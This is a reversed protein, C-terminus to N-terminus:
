EVVEDATAVLKDPVQLGLSKATKLNIALEFKTPQQVPLDAPKEGRLIRDVYGAARRFPDVQDIGYALLGGDKVFERQGFVAPLRHTAALALIAGRAFPTEVVSDGPVILGGYPRRALAETIRIIDEREHIPAALPEIGLAPAAQGFARYWDASVVNTISIMVSVRRVDPAVEKILQLWKGALSLELNSFGTINGTPGALSTVIGRGLPDSVQVFVIPITQTAKQLPVLAATTGVLMVDPHSQVLDEALVAIRALDASGWRVDFHLTSGEVWGLEQLTRRFADLRSLYIGEDAGSMLVGVKRMRERQQARAALPWAAAGGLLTIFDRRKLQDFQMRQGLWSDPLM